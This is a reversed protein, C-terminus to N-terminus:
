GAEAEFEDPLWLRLQGHISGAEADAIAPALGSDELSVRCNDPLILLSHAYIQTTELDAHGLKQKVLDWDKTAAYLRMAFTHRLSHFKLGHGAGLVQDYLGKIARLWVERRVKGGRCNPLLLDHEAAEASFERLSDTLSQALELTREDATRKGAKKRKKATRVTLLSFPVNLDGVRASSVECSRLGYLGLMCALGARRKLRSSHRCLERILGILRDLREDLPFWKRAAAM